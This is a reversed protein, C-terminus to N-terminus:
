DYEYCEYESQSNSMFLERILSINQDTMIPFPSRYFNGQFLSCWESYELLQSSLIDKKTFVIRDNTDVNRILLIKLTHSLLVTQVHDVFLSNEELDPVMFMLNNERNDYVCLELYELHEFRSLIESIHERERDCPNYTFDLVLLKLESEIQLLDTLNKWSFGRIKVNQINRSHKVIHLDHYSIGASFCSDPLHESIRSTYQTLESSRIFNVSKLNPFCKKLISLDSREHLQGLSLRTVTPLSIGGSIPLRRLTLYDLLKLDSLIDLGIRLNEAKLEQINPMDQMLVGLFHQSFEERKLFTLKDVEPFQIGATISNQPILSILISVKMRCNLSLFRDVFARLNLLSYSVDRWQIVLRRPRLISSILSWKKEIKQLTKPGDFDINFAAVKWNCNKALIELNKQNRGEFTSHKLAFKLSCQDVVDRMRRCTQRLSLISSKQGGRAGYVNALDRMCCWQENKAGERSLVHGFINEVIHIPLNLLTPTQQEVNM